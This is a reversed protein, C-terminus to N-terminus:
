LDAGCKQCKTIGQETKSGCYPCIVLVKADNGPIVEVKKRRKSIISGVIVIGIIGVIGLIIIGSQDAEGTSEGTTTDTDTITETTTESTTEVINDVNITYEVWNTEQTGDPWNSRATIRLIYSGDTYETTDWDYDLITTDLENYLFNGNLSLSIVAIGDPHYATVFINVIGSCTQGNVIGIPGTITPLVDNEVPPQYRAWDWHEYDFTVRQADWTPYYIWYVISVVYEISTYQTYNWEVRGTTINIDWLEFLRDCQSPNSPFKAWNEANLIFMSLLSTQATPGQVHVDNTINLYGGFDVDDYITYHVVFYYGYSGSKITETGSEHTLEPFARVSDPMIFMMLFALSVLILKRKMKVMM